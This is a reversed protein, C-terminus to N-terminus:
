TPSEQQECVRKAAILDRTQVPAHGLIVGNQRLILDSGEVYSNRELLDAADVFTKLAARLRANETNLREVRDIQYGCTPCPNAESM